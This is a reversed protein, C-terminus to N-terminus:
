KSKDKTLDYIPLQIIQSNHIKLSENEFVMIGYIQKLMPYWSPVLWFNIFEEDWRM